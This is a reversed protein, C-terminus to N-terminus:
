EEKDGGAPTETPCHVIPDLPDFVEEDVLGETSCNIAPDLTQPLAEGAENKTAAKLNELEEKKTRKFFGVKTLGYIILALLLIGAVVALIIIWLPVPRKKPVENILLSSVETGM